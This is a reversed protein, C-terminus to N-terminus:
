RARMPRRAKRRVNVCFEQLVQSSIVGNRERWLEELLAKAREHRVGAERDHAYVLVNTDVFARGSM